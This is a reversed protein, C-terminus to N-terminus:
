NTVRKTAVNNILKNIEKWWAHFTTFASFQIGHETCFTQFEESHYLQDYTYKFKNAKKHEARKNNYFSILDNVALSGRMMEMTVRHHRYRKPDRTMGECIYKFAEQPTVNMERCLYKINRFGTITLGFDKLWSKSIEVPNVLKRDKMYSTIGVGTLASRKYGVPQNTFYFSDNDDYNQGTPYAIKKEYKPHRAIIPTPVRLNKTVMKWNGKTFPNPLSGIGLNIPDRFKDTMKKIDENLKILPRLPKNLDKLIKLEFEIERRGRIYERYGATLKHKEILKLNDVSVPKGLYTYSGDTIDQQTQLIFAIEGVDLKKTFLGKQKKISSVMQELTQNRVKAIKEMVDQIVKKRKTFQPHEERKLFKSM